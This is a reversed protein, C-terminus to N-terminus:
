RSANANSQRKCRPGIRVHGLHLHLVLQLQRSRQERLNNLPLANGDGFRGCIKQEDNTQNGVIARHVPVVQCVIRYGIDLVVYAAHLADSFDLHEAGLVGHPDPDIRVLQMVVLQGGVIDDRRQLGLVCLYRGSLKAPLRRGQPLLKIRGDCRAGQELSRLLKLGDNQTGVTVAGADIQPIHGATPDACFIVRLM